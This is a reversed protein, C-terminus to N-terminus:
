DVILVVGKFQDFYILSYILYPFVFIIPLTSEPTFQRMSIDRASLNM